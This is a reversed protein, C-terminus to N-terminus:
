EDLGPRGLRFRLEAVDRAADSSQLAALLQLRMFGALEQLLIANDVEVTLTGESFSSIRTHGAVEQGAAQQWSSALDHYKRRQFFRKKRLLKRLLEGIRVAEHSVPDCHGQRM